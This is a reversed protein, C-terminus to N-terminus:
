YNDTLMEINFLFFGPYEQIDDIVKFISKKLIDTEESTLPHSLLAAWTREAFHGEEINDGRALSTEIREWIERNSYIQSAKTAFNGGYCVPAFKPMDIGMDYLWSGMFRYRSKIKEESRHYNIKFFKLINSDYYFSKDTPEAECSFGNQQTIRIVDKLPRYAMGAQYLNRSAKIFLVIHNNTADTEKMQRMWHAYSHDCRGTNPLRIIKSKPHSYGEITANCKSYIIVDQIQFDKLYENMWSMDEDCHSIVLTLRLRSYDVNQYKLTDGTFFKYYTSNTYFPGLYSDVTKHMLVGNQCCTRMYVDTKFKKMLLVDHKSLHKTFMAAWSRELYASMIEPDKGNKSYIQMKQIIPSYINSKLLLERSSIAFSSGYCVPNLDEHMISTLNVLDQWNGLKTHYAKGYRGAFNRNQNKSHYISKPFNTYLDMSKVCSFGYEVTSRLVNSLPRPEDKLVEDKLFIIFHNDQGFYKPITASSTIKGLWQMIQLDSYDWESKWKKTKNGFNQFYTAPCSIVTMSKIVINLGSESIYNNFISMDFKPSCHTIVISLEIKENYRLNTVVEGTWLRTICRIDLIDSCKRDMDIIKNQDGNGTKDYYISEQNIEVLAEVNDSDINKHLYTHATLNLFVCLVATIFLIHKFSLYLCKPESNAM